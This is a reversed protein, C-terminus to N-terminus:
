IVVQQNISFCNINSQHVNHRCKGPCVVCKVKSQNALPLYNTWPPIVVIKQVIYTPDCKLHKVAQVDLQHKRKNMQKQTLNVSVRKVTNNWYM